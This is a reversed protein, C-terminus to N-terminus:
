CDCCLSDSQTLLVMGSDVVTVCTGFILKLKLLSLVCKSSLLNVMYYKQATLVLPLSHSHPIKKSFYHLQPCVLLVWCIFKWKKKCITPSNRFECPQWFLLQPRQLPMLWMLVYNKKHGKSRFIIHLVILWNLKNTHQNKVTILSLLLLQSSCFLKLGRLSVIVILKTECSIISAVCWFMNILKEYALQWKSRVM